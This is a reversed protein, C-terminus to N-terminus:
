PNRNVPYTEIEDGHYLLRLRLNTINVDRPLVRSGSIMNSDGQRTFQTIEEHLGLLIIRLAHLQTELPCLLHVIIQENVFQVNSIRIPIPALVVIFPSYAPGWFPLGLVVHVAEALYEYPESHAQLEEQISRETGALEPPTAGTQDLAYAPDVMGFLETHPHSKTYTGFIIQSSIWELSANSRDLGVTKEESIQHLADVLEDINKVEHTLKLHTTEMGQQVRAPQDRLLKLYLFLVKWTDNEFYRKSCSKVEFYKWFRPHKMKFKEVDIRNMSLRGDVDQM